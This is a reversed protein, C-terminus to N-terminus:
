IFWSVLHLLKMTNDRSENWFWPSVKDEELVPQELM